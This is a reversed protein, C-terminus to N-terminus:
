EQCNQSRSRKPITLERLGKWHNNTVELSRPHLETVAASDGPQQHHKDPRSPQPVSQDTAEWHGQRPHSKCNTNQLHIVSSAPLLSKNSQAESTKAHSHLLHEWCGTQGFCASVLKRRMGVMTFAVSARPVTRSLTMLRITWCFMAAFTWGIVDNPQAEM